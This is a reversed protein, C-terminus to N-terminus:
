LDNSYGGYVTVKSGAKISKASTYTYAYLTEGQGVSVDGGAHMWPLQFVLGTGTKWTSGVRNYSSLSGSSYNGGSAAATSFYLWDNGTLTLELKVILYDYAYWDNSPTVGMSRVDESTVVEALKTLQSGGGSPIDMVAQVFGAPFALSGSTGGKTRIANAVSTLDSDLQTSDILKDVAM